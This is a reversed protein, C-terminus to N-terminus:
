DIKKLYFVANLLDSGKKKKLLQNLIQRIMEVKMIKERSYGLIKM